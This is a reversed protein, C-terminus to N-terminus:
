PAICHVMGPPTPDLQVTFTADPHKELVQGRGGEKVEVTQNVQFKGSVQELDGSDVVESESGDLFRLRVGQAETAVVLAGRGSGLLEM